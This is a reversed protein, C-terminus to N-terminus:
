TKKLNDKDAAIAEADDCRFNENNNCEALILEKVDSFQKDDCLQGVAEKSYPVETKGDFSIGVWDLVLFTTFIEKAIRADIEPDLKNQQIARKHPAMLALARKTCANSRSSGLKFYAKESDAKPEGAIKVLTGDESFEFWVGTEEAALNRTLKRLSIM